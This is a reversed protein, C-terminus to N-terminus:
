LQRLGARRMEIDKMLRRRHMQMLVSIKLSLTLIQGEAKRHILFHITFIKFMEPDEKSYKGNILEM